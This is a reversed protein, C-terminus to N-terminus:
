VFLQLATNFDLFVIRGKSEQFNGARAWAKFSWVLVRNESVTKALGSATALRASRAQSDNRSM